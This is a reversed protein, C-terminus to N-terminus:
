EGAQRIIRGCIRMARSADILCVVLVRMSGLNRRFVLCPGCKCSRTTSPSIVARASHVALPLHLLHLPPHGGDNAVCGGTPFHSMWRLNVAISRSFKRRISRILAMIVVCCKLAGYWGERGGGGERRTIFPSVREKGPARMPSKDLAQCPLSCALRQLKVQEKDVPVRFGKDENRTKVGNLLCASCFASASRLSIIRCRMM